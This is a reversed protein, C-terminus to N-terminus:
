GFNLAKGARRQEETVDEYAVGFQKAARLRHIDQGPVEVADVRGEESGKEIESM